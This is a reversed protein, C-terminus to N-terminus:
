EPKVEISDIALEIESALMLATHKATDGKNKLASEMARFVNDKCVNKTAEVADAWIREVIIRDRGNIPKDSIGLLAIEFTVADIYDIKADSM